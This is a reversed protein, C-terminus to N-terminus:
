GRVTQILKRTLGLDLNEFDKSIGSAVLFCDVYPLYEGVNDPTIGSAVALPFEGIAKKMAIVKDVDVATGTGAGSTTVVDVFPMAKRAAEGYMHPQVQRQYKFAVGGFYIGDWGDPGRRLISLVQGAQPQKELREDVYANDSWMGAVSPFTAVWTPQLDLCNVGIWYDPAMVKAEAHINLLDVATMGHNVLFVGDADAVVATAINHMVQDLSTAHIVPLVTHKRPFRARYRNM